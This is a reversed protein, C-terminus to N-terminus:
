ETIPLNVLMESEFFLDGFISFAYLKRLMESEFFLDGFISFAYLKRQVGATRGKEERRGTRTGCPPDANDYVAGDKNSEPWRRHPSQFLSPPPVFRLIEEDVESSGDDVM